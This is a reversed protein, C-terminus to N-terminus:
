LWSEPQLQLAFAVPSAAAIVAALGSRMRDGYAPVTYICVVASLVAARSPGVLGLHLVGAWAALTVASAVTLLVTLPARRRWTLPLTQLLCVVLNSRLPPVYNASALDHWLETTAWGALLSALVLDGFVSSRTSRTSGSTRARAWRLADLMRRVMHSTGRTRM